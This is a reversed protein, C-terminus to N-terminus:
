PNAGHKTPFEYSTSSLHAKKLQKPSTQEADKSANALELGYAKVSIGQWCATLCLSFVIHSKLM